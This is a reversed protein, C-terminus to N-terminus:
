PRTASKGDSNPGSKTVIVHLMLARMEPKAYTKKQGGQGLKNDSNRVETWNKNM